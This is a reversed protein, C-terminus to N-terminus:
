TCNSTDIYMEFLEDMRCSHCKGPACGDSCEEDSSDDTSGSQSLAPTSLPTSDNSTNPPTTFRVRKRRSELFAEDILEIKHRKTNDSIRQRHSCESDFTGYITRGRLDKGVFKRDGARRIWEDSLFAGEGTRKRSLALSDDNNVEKCASRSTTYYEFTKVQPYPIAHTSRIATPGDESFIPM